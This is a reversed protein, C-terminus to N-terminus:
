KSGKLSLNVYACELAAMDHQYQINELLEPAREQLDYLCIRLLRLLQVDAIPIANKTKKKPM